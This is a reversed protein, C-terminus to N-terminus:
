WLTQINYQHILADPTVLVLGHVLAQCVLMRDFPDRHLMPLSAMRLSAAEDLPFPDIRHQSRVKPIWTEPSEPLALRGLSHKVCIEIVSAASLYVSNSHSVLAARAAQSLHQPESVMWLFTVTDALVKV